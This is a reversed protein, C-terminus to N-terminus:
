GANKTFRIENLRKLNRTELKMNNTESQQFESTSGSVQFRFRSVGSGFSRHKVCLHLPSDAIVTSINM